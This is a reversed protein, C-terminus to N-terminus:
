IFKFSAGISCKSSVGAKHMRRLFEIVHSESVDVGADELTRFIDMKDHCSLPGSPAKHKMHKAAM